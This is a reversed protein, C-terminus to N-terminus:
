SEIVVPLPIEPKKCRHDRGVDDDAVQNQRCGPGPYLMLWAQCLPCHHRRRRLSYRAPRDIDAQDSRPLIDNGCKMGGAPIRGIRNRQPGAEFDDSTHQEIAGVLVRGDTWQIEVSPTLIQSEFLGISYARVASLM